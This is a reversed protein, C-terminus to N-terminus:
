KEKNENAKEAESILESLLKKTLNKEGVKKVGKYEELIEDTTKGDKLHGAIEIICNLEAESYQNDDPLVEFDSEKVFGKKLLMSAEDDSLFESNWHRATAPIYKLGKWAPKCTRNKAQEFKKAMEIGNKLLQQYYNRQSNTCTRPQGGCLYLKSYCSLLKLSLPTSVVKEFPTNLVEKVDDIIM